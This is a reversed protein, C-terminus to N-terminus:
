RKGKGQYQAKIRPDIFAYLLDVLLMGLAAIAALIIVCGQVVPYDRNNVGTLVYLGCGPISFLTEIIASGGLCHAFRSGLITVVPILANPLAHGWIVKRESLGKSRATVVYDSRIVELMSSRTQRALNAISSVASCIIPLVYYQWGGIGTSPLWGLRLSFVLVLMMGVWFDPMSVGALAVLMSASDQWKGAHTAASIGLPIGVLATILISVVSIIATRPMRTMLEGAVSANTIYSNGFDFKLFVNYLYNGLQVLYPQDLGMQATKEALQQETAESGLIIKAPNGPAYYMLSFILIAVGIIVPIMWLLRKGIYRAM